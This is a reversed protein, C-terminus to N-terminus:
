EYMGVSQDKKRRDHAGNVLCRGARACWVVCGVCGVGRITTTTADDATARRSYYVTTVPGLPCDIAYHNYYRDIVRDYRDGRKGGTCM